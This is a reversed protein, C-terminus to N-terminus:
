AAAVHESGDSRSASTCNTSPCRGVSYRMGDQTPVSGFGTKRSCPSHCRDCSRVPTPTSSRSFSVPPVPLDTSTESPKSTSRTFPQEVSFFQRRRRRHYHWRRRRAAHATDRAAARHAVVTQIRRAAFCTAGTREGVASEGVHAWTCEWPRGGNGSPIASRIRLSAACAITPAPRWEPCPIFGATLADSSNSGAKIRHVPDTPLVSFELALLARINGEEKRTM